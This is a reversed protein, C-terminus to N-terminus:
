PFRSNMVATVLARWRDRGQVLDIWDMVGVWKRLICRLILRGNIGPDELHDGERLDGRWFRTHV